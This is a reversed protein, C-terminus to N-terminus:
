IQPHEKCYDELMKRIRKNKETDNNVNSQQARATNVGKGGRKFIQKLDKIMNRKKRICRYIDHTKCFNELKEFFILNKRLYKNLAEGSAGEGSM